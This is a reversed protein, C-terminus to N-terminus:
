VGPREARKLTVRITPELREVRARLQAEDAGDHYLVVAHDKLSLGVGHVGEHGLLAEAIRRKAAQLQERTPESM